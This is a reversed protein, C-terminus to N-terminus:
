LIHDGSYRGALSMIAIEGGPVQMGKQYMLEAGLALRSTIRQLYHAVMLGTNFIAFNTFFIRKKVTM